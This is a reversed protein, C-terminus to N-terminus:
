KIRAQVAYRNAAVIEERDYELRFSIPVQGPDTIVQRAILRSAVDLLTVDHLEVEVVSGPPLAIRERYTLTGTVAADGTNNDDPETPQRDQCAAGPLLILGSGLAALVTRIASSTRRM